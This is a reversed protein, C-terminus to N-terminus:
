LVVHRGGDVHLMEGTIRCALESLMFAAPGAIATFDYEDWGLPARAHFDAALEDLGPIVSGANTRVPGCALLNVRARQPALQVALQKVLSNLAAKTVAMWAYSHVLAREMVTLALLNAGGPSAALLPLLAGALDKLSYVSARMAVDISEHPVEFFPAAFVEPPAFAISHLIGDVRGWRETLEAALAAFDPPALVDLELVDPPEPLYRAARETIRRSRGFGTLLIEAGMRQMREAAHYALSRDTLVGTVLIRRGALLGRGDCGPAPQQQEQASVEVRSAV